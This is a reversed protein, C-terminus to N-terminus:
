EIDKMFSILGPLADEIEDRIGRYVDVSSGIPDDVDGGSRSPDFSKLLFAKEIVAPYMVRLQALHSATMVVILASEDILERFLPQSLHASMDIKREKLVQVASRSAPMGDGASLGASIVKWGSDPGLRDRLLYEAM